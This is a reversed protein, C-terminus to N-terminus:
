NDGFLQELEEDTLNGQEQLEQELEQQFTPGQGEIVAVFFVTVVIALVIALLSLSGGVIAMVKGGATGKSVQVLAIIGLVLGAIGLVISGINLVPIWCGLLALIGLVLATIALGKRESAPRQQPTGYYGPQGPAQGPYGPQGPAQGPYGPQPPTGYPQSPGASHQQPAGYPSQPAPNQQPAGYPPQPQAPRDSGEPEYPTSM